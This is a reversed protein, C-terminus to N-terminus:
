KKAPTVTFKTEPFAKQKVQVMTAIDKPTGTVPAPKYVDGSKNTQTIVVTQQKAM